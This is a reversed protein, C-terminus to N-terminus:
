EGLDKLRLGVYAWKMTGQLDARQKRVLKPLVQNLNKFFHGEGSDVVFSDECWRVYSKKLEDCFVHGVDRNVVEVGPLNGTDLSRHLVVRDQLFELTKSNERRYQNLTAAMKTPITFGVNERLRPLREIAWNTLSSVEAVLRPSAAPCATRPVTKSRPPAEPETMMAVGDWGVRDRRRPCCRQRATQVLGGTGVRLLGVLRM